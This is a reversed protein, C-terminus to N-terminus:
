KIAFKNYLKRKVIFVYVSFLLTTIVQAILFTSDAEERLFMMSFFILYLGYCFIKSVVIAIVMSLFVSDLKRFLFYFLFVNAMLESTMVLMKFFEPHGSVAWSFFSLTLALLYSNASTSHAISLIVMLRMPEIMYFPLHILEGIAPTFYVVALALIDLLIATLFTRNRLSSLNVTKLTM